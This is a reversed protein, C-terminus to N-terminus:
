LDRGVAVPDRVGHASGVEDFVLADSVEPHRAPVTLARQLERLGLVALVRRAPARVAFVNREERRAAAVLLGLLEPHQIAGAAFRTRERSEVTVDDVVGPRRVALTEGQDDRVLIRVLLLFAFLVFGRRRDDDIPEIELFVLGAVEAVFALM